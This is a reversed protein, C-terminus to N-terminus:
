ASPLTLRISLGGLIADQDLELEGGYLRALDDVIALGLGSGPTAEDLRIGRAIVAARRDEPIGPGDDAITICLRGPVAPAASLRIRGACWKAANDLLNGVMEQLDQGEGRFMLGDPVQMDIAIDRDPHLRPITRALGALAPALATRLGAGRAMAAARARSLHHDIQRRMRETEAAILRASEADAMDHTSNAIVALPTKLAHALNGAQTRAREVMDANDTLVQNLDDVLPQVESPFAGQVRTSRGARLDALAARLRDLPVLGLRVQALAAALLGLALVGLSLALVRAFNGTATEVSAANAAVAIEVTQDGDPLSVRREWILATGGEPAVDRRLHLAGDAPVPEGAPLVQDWLSRSRLQVEGGQSVQWYLGSLPREFRPDSLERLLVLQRDNGQGKFSLAATLQDLHKEMARTLDAEVHRRFLDTLAVGAVLLAMLVWVVALALLRRGLSGVRRM